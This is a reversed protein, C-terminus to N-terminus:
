NNDNNDTTQESKKRYGNWGRTVMTACVLDRDNQWFRLLCTVAICVHVRPPSPTRYNGSKVSSLIIPVAMAELALQQKEGCQTDVIFDERSVAQLSYTYM